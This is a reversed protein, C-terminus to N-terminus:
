RRCGARRRHRARPIESHGISDGATEAVAAHMKGLGSVPFRHEVHHDLPKALARRRLDVTERSPLSFGIVAASSGKQSRWAANYVRALPLNDIHFGFGNPLTLDVHRIGGHGAPADPIDLGLRRYFDVSADFDRAVIDILDLVPATDKM